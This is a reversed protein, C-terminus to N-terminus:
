RSGGEIRAVGEALSNLRAHIAGTREREEARHDVLEGKIERLLGTLETLAVVYRDRDQRDHALHNEMITTLQARAAAAEGYAQTVAAQLAQIPAQEQLAETQTRAHRKAAWVGVAAGGATMIAWPVLSLIPEM